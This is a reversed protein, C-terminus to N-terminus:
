NQIQILVWRLLILLQEQMWWLKHWSFSLTFLVNVKLWLFVGARYIYVFRVLFTATKWGINQQDIVHIGIKNSMNQVHLYITLTWVTILICVFFVIVDHKCKHFQSQGFYASLRCIKRLAVLRESRSACHALSRDLWRGVLDNFPCVVNYMYSKYLVLLIWSSSQVRFHGTTGYQLYSQIQIAWRQLINVSTM